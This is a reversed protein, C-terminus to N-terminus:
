DERSIIGQAVIKIDRNNKFREYFDRKLRLKYMIKEEATKGRVIDVNDKKTGVKIAITHYRKDTIDTNNYIM